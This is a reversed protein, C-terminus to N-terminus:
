ALIIGAYSAGKEFLLYTSRHPEPSSTVNGKKCLLGLDGKSFRVRKPRDLSEQMRSGMLWCRCSCGRCGHVVVMKLFHM